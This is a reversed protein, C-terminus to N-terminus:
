RMGPIVYPEQAPHKDIYIKPLHLYVPYIPWYPPRKPNEHGITFLHILLQGFIIKPSVMPTGWYNNNIYMHQIIKYEKLIINRELNQYINNQIIKMKNASSTSIGIANETVNNFFISVNESDEIRIGVDDFRVENNSIVTNDGNTISIGKYLNNNVTNDAIVTNLSEFVYIGCFCNKILNHYIINKTSYKHTLFPWIFIGLWCDDIINDTFNTENGNIWVAYSSTMQQITFGSLFVKDAIILILSYVNHIGIGLIITTNKNEGIVRVSKDIVIGENYPSSDDYVFVTDGHSANDIADQIKSYNGPGSGGVYLWNGRSTPLPTKTDQAIAPIICTGVFLLIIGIALAKRKM